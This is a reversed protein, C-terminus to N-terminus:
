ASLNDIVSLEISFGAFYGNIGMSLGGMGGPYLQVQISSNWNQQQGIPQLVNGDCPIAGICPTPVSGDAGTATTYVTLQALAGLVCLAATVPLAWLTSLGMTPWTLSQSSFLTHCQQLALLLLLTIVDYM